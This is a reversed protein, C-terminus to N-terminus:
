TRLTEGTPVFWIGTDGVITNGSPRSDQALAPVTCVFSLTLGIAVRRLMKM